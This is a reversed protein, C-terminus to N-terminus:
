VLQQIAKFKNGACSFPRYDVIEKEWDNLLMVCLATNISRAAPRVQQGFYRGTGTKM